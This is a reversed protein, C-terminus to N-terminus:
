DRCLCFPHGAPDLFVRFTEGPQYAHKTAGLALVAAEAEDLDDVDVDIHMQQPVDQDPWVPPTYNEVHQFCYRRGTVDSVDTWNGYPQDEHLNVKWELLAGYFTALAVPDPCDLVTTPNRAIAM